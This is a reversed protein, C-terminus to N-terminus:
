QVAQHPEPRHGKPLHYGVARVWPGHLMVRPLASLKRTLKPESLM